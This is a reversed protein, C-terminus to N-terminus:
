VDIFMLKFDFARKEYQFYGRPNCVIRTSGIEYDFVDHTHGHTWLKIQPHDLIFDSLDSAFAGNMSLDSKYKPHISQTSPAMHSVVVFKEDFKGEMVTRIYEMSEAHVQATQAPRLKTYGKENNRIIKYDNMIDAVSQLTIPDGRNMDTWLTCGIFTVGGITKTDNEMFYVNPFKACENRLVQLSGPFKGHYFEHNGAIYVVHPFEMSCHKLFDRYRQASHQRRGLSDVQIVNKLKEETHDHLDQANMIDGSLILVDANEDNTIDIDGFELHLDSCVALKM